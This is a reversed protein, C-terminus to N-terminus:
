VTLRLAASSASGIAVQTRSNMLSRLEHVPLAVSRRRILRSRELCVLPLVPQGLFGRARAPWKRRACVNRLAIPMSTANLRSPRAPFRTMVIREHKSSVAPVTLLTLSFAVRGCALGTAPDITGPRSPM